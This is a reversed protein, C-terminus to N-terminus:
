RADLLTPDIGADRLRQEIQSRASPNAALADRAAQLTAADDAGPGGAGANGGGQGSPGPAPQGEGGSFLSAGADIVRDIFGPGGSESDVEVPKQDALKSPDVNQLLAGFIDSGRAYPEGVVNWTKGGDQSEEFVEQTDSIRRTRGRYKGGDPAASQPQYRTRDDMMESDTIFRVMQLKRDYVPFTRPAGEPKPPNGVVWGQVEVLDALKDSGKPVSRFSRPNNPDYVTVYDGPKGKADPFVRDGTDVYRLFGGADQRMERKQPGASMAGTLVKFADDYNGSQYLGQVLARQNDSISVSPMQDATGPVSARAANDRTGPVMPAPMAAPMAPGSLLGSGGSRPPSLLGGVPPLDRVAMPGGRPDNAASPRRMAEAAEVTPGGHQAMASNRMQIAGAEAAAQEDPSGLGLFQAVFKQRNQAQRSQQEEAAREKEIDALNSLTGGIAALGAGIEAGRSQGQIPSPAPIVGGGGRPVSALTDAIMSGQSRQLAGIPPLGVYGGRGNSGIM